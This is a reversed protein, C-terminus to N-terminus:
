VTWDRYHGLRCDRSAERAVKAQWLARNGGDADDIALIHNILSQAAVKFIAQGNARDGGDDGGGGYQRCAVTYREAVHVIAPHRRQAVALNRRLDLCLYVSTLPPFGAHVRRSCRSTAHRGGSP